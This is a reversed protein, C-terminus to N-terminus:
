RPVWRGDVRHTRVGFWRELEASIAADDTLEREDRRGDETVILQRGFLTAGGTELLRSCLWGTTFPSDPSTRLSDCMATFSGLDHPAPDVRYHPVWRGDRHRWELDWGDDVEVLRFAGMLDHQEEGLVLRLPEAFSYGFGVDVLWPEDLDVRLALHELPEGVSADTYTRAALYHVSYGVERLLAAFAGNLEYCFGGRGDRGLKQVLLSEDLTIVDGYLVSSNEFPILRMHRAHLRRLTDLDPELPLALGLRALYPTFENM